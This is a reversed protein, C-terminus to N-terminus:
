FPLDTEKEKDSAPPPATTPSSTTYEDESMTNSNSEEQNEEDIDKKTNDDDNMPYQAVFHRDPDYYLQFTGTRGFSDRLVTLRAPTYPISGYINDVFLFGGEDVEYHLLLDAYHRYDINCDADAVVVIAVGLEAALRRLQECIIIYRHELSKTPIIDELRLLQLWDVFLCNLRNHRVMEYATYKLYFYQNDMVPCLYFHTNSLQRHVAELRHLDQRLSWQLVTDGATYHCATYHIISQQNERTLFMGVSSMGLAMSLLLSTTDTTANATIITLKGRPFGYIASDFHDFTTLVHEHQLNQVFNTACESFALEIHKPSYTM